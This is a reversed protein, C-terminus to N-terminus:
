LPVSKTDLFINIFGDQHCPINHHSVKKSRKSKKGPPRHVDDASVSVNRTRKSTGQLTTLSDPTSTPLKVPSSVQKEVQKEVYVRSGRKNRVEVTEVEIIEPLKKKAPKVSSSSKQHKSSGKRSSMITTHFLSEAELHVHTQPSSILYCM